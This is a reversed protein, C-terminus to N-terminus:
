KETETRRMFEEAASINGNLRADAKTQPLPFVETFRHEKRTFFNKPSYVFESGLKGRAILQACYRECGSVFDEWTHGDDIRALIDREAVLWDSELYTGAPYAAKLGAIRDMLEPDTLKERACDGQDKIRLDKSGQDKIRLDGSSRERPNALIRSSEDFSPIKSKSPKDIKQHILWNRIEVYTDDDIKYRLICGEDDLEDLWGDILGRADEDYPYLLSALM